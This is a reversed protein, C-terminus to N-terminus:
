LIPILHEQSIHFNFWEYEYVNKSCDEKHKNIEGCEGCVFGLSTHFCTGIRPPLGLYKMKQYDFTQDMQSKLNNFKKALSLMKVEIEKRISGLVEEESFFINNGPSFYGLDINSEYHVCRVVNQFARTQVIKAKLLKGNYIVFGIDNIKILM